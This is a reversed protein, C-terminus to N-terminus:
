ENARLILPTLYDILVKVKPSLYRRNPYLLSIDFPQQAHDPLIQVLEGTALAPAILFLPLNAIGLGNKTMQVLSTGNNSQINATPKYKLTQGQHQFQWQSHREYVIFRHNELEALSTPTGFQALYAPSAVLLHHSQAVRKAIISSDELQGIRLVLDFGDAVMDVRRDSFDLDLQLNPYTAFFQDLYPVIFRIGFDIPLSIKLKGHLTSTINSVCSEAEQLENLIPLCREYYLMGAETPSIKRTTRNLLRVNLSEELQAILKTAMANSIQELEAAQKFSQTEIIRCFLSIANLKNM